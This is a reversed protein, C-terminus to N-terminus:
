CRRVRVSPATCPNRKMTQLRPPPPLCVVLAPVFRPFASSSLLLCGAAVHELLLPGMEGRLVRVRRWGSNIQRTGGPLSQLAAPLERPAALPRHPASPPLPPPAAGAAAAAALGRQGASGKGPARARLAGPARNGRFFAGSRGPFPQAPGQSGWFLLLCAPCNDAAHM